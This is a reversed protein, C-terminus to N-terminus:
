LDFLGHKESKQLEVEGPIGISLYMSERKVRKFILLPIQCSTGMYAHQLGLEPRNLIAM